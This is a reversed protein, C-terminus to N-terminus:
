EPQLLHNAAALALGYGIPGCGVIVGAAIDSFYSQHRFHERAYVNSIHVEFFPISVGLLADRLAISTHTFAGPNLIIADVNERAAQHVREVLVHEAASQFALLEAGLAQAREVMDAELEALTASGYLEAERTGLLNLNPGNILLFKSM